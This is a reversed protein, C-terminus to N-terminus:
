EALLLSLIKGNMIVHFSRSCMSLSILWLFVLVTHYWKYTFYLFALSTKLFFLLLLAVLFCTTPYYQHYKLTCIQTHTHTYVCVCICICIYTIYINCLIFVTNINIITHIAETAMMNCYIFTDFYCAKCRLNVFQLMNCKDLVAVVFRLSKGM